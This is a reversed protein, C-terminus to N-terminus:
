IQNQIQSVQEEEKFFRIDYNSRQLYIEYLCFATPILM